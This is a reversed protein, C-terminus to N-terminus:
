GALFLIAFDASLHERFVEIRWSNVIRLGGGARITGASAVIFPYAVLHIDLPEDNL